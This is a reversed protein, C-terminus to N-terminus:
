IAYKGEHHVLLKVIVGDDVVEQSGGNREILLIFDFHHPWNSIFLYCSIPAIIKASFIYLEGYLEWKRQYVLDCLLGYM